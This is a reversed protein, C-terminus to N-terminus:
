LSRIIFVSLIILSYFIVLSCCIPVFSLLSLTLRPIRTKHVDQLVELIRATNITQGISTAIYETRVDERGALECIADRREQIEAITRVRTDALERALFDCGGTTATRNIRHFLSQPGFIDLDLTFEHHPDIYQEGSSFCSFDGNLYSLENQYVKKIKAKKEVSETYFTDKRRVFLYLALFVVALALSLIGGDWAFYSVVFLVMALFSLLLWITMKRSNGKLLAIEESLISIREIYFQRINHMNPNYDCYM